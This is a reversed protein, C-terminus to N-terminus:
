VTMATSPQVTVITAADALEGNLCGARRMSVVRAMGATVTTVWVSESSSWGVRNM